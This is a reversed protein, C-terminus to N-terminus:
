KLILSTAAGMQSSDVKSIGGAKALTKVGMGAVGPIFVTADGTRGFVIVDVFVSITASVPNPVALTVLDATTGINKYRQTVRLKAEASAVLETNTPIGYKRDVSDFCAESIGCDDYDEAMGESWIENFIMGYLASKAGQEFSGGLGRSVTGGVISAAIANHLAYDTLGNPGSKYAGGLAAAQSVGASWFGDSANGGSAYASAAGIAGHALVKMMQQGTTLYPNGLLSISGNMEAMEGFSSHVENFAKATAFSVAASRVVDGFSGGSIDTLYASFAAAGGAQGYVTAAIQGGVRAWEYKLFLRKVPKTYMLAAGSNLVQVAVFVKVTKKLARKLSFYGSPDTYSMPNNFVYTYRNYSQLNNPAQVIPDASLFRGLVPDYVRGNMHILGVGDLHEHGTYGRTVDEIIAPENRRDGFTDFDLQAKVTGNVDSIAVVSGQYDRHMYEIENSQTGSVDTVTYTAVVGGGGRIYHKHKIEGASTDKEYLGGIYKTLHDVNAVIDRRSREYRARSPGYKFSETHTTTAISVPKNFVSWGISKGAGTLMNGNADYTYSNGNAASVAHPSTGQANNWAYAYTGVNTKSRINGLVDYANTLTVSGNNTVTLLRNLNDYDYLETEDPTAGRTVIRERLNGLTDYQYGASYVNDNAAINLASTRGVADFSQWNSVGNGLASMTVRNAADRLDAQWYTTKGDESQVENLASASNYVNRVKFSTNEATEPYTLLDPRNFRDYAIKTDYAEEVVTEDVLESLVTTTRIPLGLTANYESTKRYQEDGGANVMVVSDLKGISMTAPTDGSLLDDNYSWTTVVGDDDTRTKMRGMKDYSMATVKGNADTQSTLESLVNYTYSWTGMDPDSMSEKRGFVDYVFSTVNGKTDLVTTGDVSLKPKLIKDNNGNADFERYISKGANDITEINQGIINNIETRNQTTPGGAIPDLVDNYYTANLGNYDIRAIGGDPSTVTVPRSLDDYATTSIYKEDTAYSFYPQTSAVVRGLNDYNTDLYIRWWSTNSTQKRIERGLSDYYAIMDPVFEESAGTGGTIKTTVTFLATQAVMTPSLAPVTCGYTCWDRETVTKIGGASLQEIVQGFNDYQWTTVLGNADIKRKVGGFREDHEPTQVIHGHENTVTSPFRGRADYTTSIGRDVIGAGSILTNTVHGFDDEYSHTKTLGYTPDGANLVHGNETSLQCKDSTYILEKVATPSTGEPGTKYTETKTPLFQHCYLAGASDYSNTTFTEYVDASSASSTKVSTSLVNGTDDDKLTTNTEVTKLEAESLYDFSTTVDKSVYPISIEGGSWTSTKKAATKTSTSILKGNLTQTETQIMGVYPFSQRYKVQTVLGTDLNTSTTFRFGLSGRGGLNVKDGQYTYNIRTTGGLGDVTTKNKVVQKATQIGMVPYTGALKTYISDNTLPSYSVTSTNGLGNTASTLLDPLVGTSLKMYAYPGTASASYIDSMGDGNFDAIGNYGTGGWWAPFSIPWKESRYRTGESISLQLYMNIVFDPGVEVMSTAIDTLGDGNFDSAWTLDASNWSNTTTWTDFSFSKGSSLRMYVNGGSASAIDTLGDGNYDGTWTKSIEGWAGFVNWTQNNFSTGKSLHMYIAGGNASAIDTLGDGNFDGSWTRSESGWNSAPWEKHVFSDGNSLYMHVTGSIRTAFDSRGDGNFDAVWTYGASGVSVSTAWVGGRFELVQGSPLTLSRQIIFDSGNSLYVFLNGNYVTLIDTMGNGDFDGTKIYASTGYNGGMSWQQHKFSNGNSLRMYASSDTGSLTVLDQKGDGDFDGPFTLASDTGWSYSTSWASGSLSLAGNQWSFTTPSICNTPSSTCERMSTLRSQKTAGANEYYLQYDKVLNGDVYTKINTLRDDIVSASGGTWHKIIDSRPAYEFQVSAYPTLSTTSSDNGTYDIRVISDAGSSYEYCLFGCFESVPAKEAYAMKLYNGSIDQVKGLAWVEVTPDPEPPDQFIYLTVTQGAEFRSDYVGEVFGFTMVTGSPTVIEFYTPGNGSTGNNVAKIKLQNDIETRYISGNYGYNGSVLILRQGNLCFRDSYDMSVPRTVGDIAKNKGCRTIQSIGGISWGVGVVGNGSQSDYNLSLEPQVGATGPPIEIPITYNAAGTPSVSFDGALSGVVNTTPAVIEADTLVYTEIGVLEGKGTGKVKYYAIVTGQEDNIVDFYVAGRDLAEQLCNNSADCAELELLQEATLTKAARPSSSTRVWVSQFDIYLINSPKSLDSDIKAVGYIESTGNELVVSVSFVGTTTDAVVSARLSDNVYIDVDIGPTATGTLQLPNFYSPLVPQDLIPPPIDITVNGLSLQGLIARQLILLDATNIIGDVANVPAVDGTILEATTPTIQGLVLRQMIVLDGVNLQGDPAGRPALDGVM